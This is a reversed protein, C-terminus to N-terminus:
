TLKKAKPLAPRAVPIEINLEDGSKVRHSPNTLKAGGLTVQGEEILSKLRTRSLETLALSLYKDVRTGEGTEPITLKYKHSVQEVM